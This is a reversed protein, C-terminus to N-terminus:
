GIPYKAKFADLSVLGISNTDYLFQMNETAVPNTLGSAFNEKVTVIEPTQNNDWKVKDALTLCARVDTQTIVVPPPAPPEVYEYTNESINRLWGIQVEDPASFTMALVEPSFCEELTFGPVPVLFEVVTQQAENLPTCRANKM